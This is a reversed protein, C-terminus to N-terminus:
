SNIVRNKLSLLGESQPGSEPPITKTLSALGGGAFNAAGGMLNEMAEQEQISSRLAELGTLTSTVAPTIRKTEAIMNLYEQPSIGAKQLPESTALMNMLEKDSYQYYLNKMEKERRKRLAIAEGSEYKGIQPLKYKAINEGTRGQIYEQAVNTADKFAESSIIDASQDVFRGQERAEAAAPLYQDIRSAKKARDREELARNFASLQDQAAFGSRLINKDASSELMRNREMLM